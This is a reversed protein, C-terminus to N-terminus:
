YIGRFSRISQLKLEFSSWDDYDDIHSWISEIEDILLTEPKLNLFYKNKELAPKAIKMKSLNIKLSDFVSGKYLSSQESSELRALNFSHFDFFTKEFKLKKQEMLQFFLAMSETVLIKDACELNLRHLFVKHLHENFYLSFNELIEKTMLEPFAVELSVALQHLNWLFSTPQHGYAFLGQSDFYAATFTPDYYPLFRYPGYDFLEGSININDSNLVGHVFGTMMMQAVLQANRRCVLNLFSSAVITEDKFNIESISDSYYFHLCYSVLKKINEIEHFFALRQFTGIRIHGLSFRTLVASRAPSPEDQRILNEGTEFFCLTKSTLVGLSELMETALAERVAGKLTLRGDGGRSYKTQGSGKTGLDYWQNNNKIQAYLFGRGDGLQPNYNQFQHGHYRLALPQNLNNDLPKFNWLYEKELTTPVNPNWYRLKELPFQAPIAADYFASGLQLIPLSNIDWLYDM